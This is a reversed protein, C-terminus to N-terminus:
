KDEQLHSEYKKNVMGLIQKLSQELAEVFSGTTVRGEKYIVKSSIMEYIELDNTLVNLKCLKELIKDKTDVSITNDIDKIRKREQALQAKMSEYESNLRENEQNLQSMAEEFEKMGPVLGEYQQRVDEKALVEAKLQAEVSKLRADKERVSQDLSQIDDYRAQLMVKYESLEDELNKIKQELGASSSKNENELQSQLQKIIEANEQAQNKYLVVEERLLTDESLLKVLKEEPIVHHSASQMLNANEFM